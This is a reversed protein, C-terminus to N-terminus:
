MLLQSGLAATLDEEPKSKFSELQSLGIGLHSLSERWIAVDPVFRVVYGEPDVAVLACAKELAGFGPGTKFLAKQGFTFM